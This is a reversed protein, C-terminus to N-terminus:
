CYPSPRLYGGIIKALDKRELKKM